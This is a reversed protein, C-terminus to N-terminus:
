LARSGATLDLPRAVADRIKVERQIVKVEATGVADVRAGFETGFDVLERGGPMRVAFGCAQEPCHARIGGQYLRMTTAGVFVFAVPGEIVLDAGKAFRWPL